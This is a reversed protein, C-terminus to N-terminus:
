TWPWMRGAPLSVELIRDFLLYGGVAVLIATLVGSWWRGGFLAHVAFVMVATALPFGLTEFFTAYLLLIAILLVGKGLLGANPWQIGPEPNILLAGCCLAMLIALLIPFAKPGVPEYAFPVSLALMQVVIVTCICLWLIAFIRDTM